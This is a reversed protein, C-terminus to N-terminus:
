RQFRIATARVDAPLPKNGTYTRVNDQNSNLRLQQVTAPPLQIPALRVDQLWALQPDVNVTATLALVDTQPNRLSLSEPLQRPENPVVAEAVAQAPAAAPAAVAVPPQNLKDAKGSRSVGVFVVAVCAAAAAFSSAVYLRRRKRSASAAELAAVDRQPAVQPETAFDKALLKCGKQMRCYAEYLRRRALNGQVEAELRAADAPSIEHDLYLNLLEIFESDKM